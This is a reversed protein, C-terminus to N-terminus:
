AGGEAVPSDGLLRTIEKVFANALASPPAGRIIQRARRLDPAMADWDPPMGLLRAKMARAQSALEAQAQPALGLRGAFEELAGIVDPLKQRASEDMM